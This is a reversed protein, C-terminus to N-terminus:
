YKRLIDELNLHRIGCGCHDILDQESFTGECFICVYKGDHYHIGDSAGCNPCTIDDEEETCVSEYDNPTNFIETGDDFVHVNIDGGFKSYSYSEEVNKKKNKFLGM